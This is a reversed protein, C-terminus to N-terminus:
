PAYLCIEMIDSYRCRIFVKYGQNMFNSLASLAQTTIITKAGKEVVWVNERNDEMYQAVIAINGSKTTSSSDVLAVSFIENEVSLLEGYYYVLGGNDHTATVSDNIDGKSYDFDKRITTINSYIDTKYLIFDGVDLYSDSNPNTVSAYDAHSMPIYVTHYKNDYGVILKLSTEGKNNLAIKIDHIMGGEGREDDIAEDTAQTKMVFIDARGSTSVNYPHLSSFTHQSDNKWTDPSGIKYKDEIAVDDSTNVVFIVSNSDIAFYPVFSGFIKYYVTDDPNLGEIVYPRLTNYNDVGPRYVSEAQTSAPAEPLWIATIENDSNVNYRVLTIGDESLYAGLNRNSISFDDNIRVKDTCRHVDLIGNETFVQILSGNDLGVGPKLGVILGLRSETSGGKLIAALSGGTTLVFTGSEATPLNGMYRNKFYPSCKYEVEDIFITKDSTGTVKGNIEETLINIEIYKGDESEYFEFVTGGVISGVSVEDDGSFVKYTIDSSNTEFRKTRTEGPRIFTDIITRNEVNVIDAYAIDGSYLYMVEYESDEDSNVLVIRGVEFDFDEETLDFVVKGNFITAYTNSFKATKEKTGDFYTIRDYEFVPENFDYLTLIKSKNEIHTIKNQGRDEKWYGEVYSGILINEDCLYSGNEIKIFGDSEHASSSHMHTLDNAYVVGEVRNWGYFRELLNQNGEYSIVYSPNKIAISDIVRMNAEVMNRLMILCNATSLPANSKLETRNIIDIEDAIYLYGYPWGGRAICEPEYGLAVTMIKCAEFYTISDDPRFHTGKSIIGFDVALNIAWCYSDNISVDYFYPDEVGINVFRFATMVAEIFKARTVYEGLEQSFPVRIGASDLLKKALDADVKEEDTVTALNVAEPEAYSDSAFSDISFNLFVLTFIILFSIIRKM